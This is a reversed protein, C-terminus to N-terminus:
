QGHGTVTFRHSAPATGSSEIVVSGTFPPSRGEKEAITATLTWTRRNGATTPASLEYKVFKPTVRDPVIKLEITPDNSVLRFEKKFRYDSKYSGLELRHNGGEIRVRGITTGHFVTRYTTQSLSPCAMHVEAEFEGIDGTGGVRTVTVPIRYGSRIRIASKLEAGLKASLAACEDATMRIPLGVKFRDDRSPMSIAPPVLDDRTMSYVLTEFTRPAIDEPFEGMEIRPPYVEFAERVAYTVGLQKPNPQIKGGQADLLNFEGYVRQPPASGYTRFDLEVLAFNPEAVKGAAPISFTGRPNAFDFTFWEASNIVKAWAIGSLLNPVGGTASLSGAAHMIAFEDIKERRLNAARASTCKACSPPLPSMQVAHPRHNRLMFGVWNRNPMGPGGTGVEFFGSFVRNWYADPSATPDYKYETADGALPPIDSLPTGETTDGAKPKVTPTSTSIVTVGFIVAVLLVLALLPKASGTM